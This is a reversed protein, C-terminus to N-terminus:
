VLKTKPKYPRFNYLSCKVIPCLRIETKQFCSCDWCKAWVALKRSNPNQIAREIPDLKEPPKIEGSKVKDWYLKSQDEIKLNKDM